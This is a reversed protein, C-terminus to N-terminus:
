IDRQVCNGGVGKVNGEPRRMCSGPLKNLTRCTKQQKRVWFRGNIKPNARGCAVQIWKGNLSTM